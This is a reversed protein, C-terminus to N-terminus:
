NMPCTHSTHLYWFTRISIQLSRVLLTPWLEQEQIKYIVIYAMGHLYFDHMFCHYPIFNVHCKVSTTKTNWCSCRSGFVILLLFISTYTAHRTTHSQLTQVYSQHQCNKKNFTNEHGCFSKSATEVSGPKQSRPHFKVWWFFTSYSISAVNHSGAATPSSSMHLLSSHYLCTYQLLTSLCDIPCHTYLKIM